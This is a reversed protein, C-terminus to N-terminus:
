SEARLMPRQEYARPWSRLNDPWAYEALEVGERRRGVLRVYGLYRGADAELAEIEALNDPWNRRHWYSWYQWGDPMADATEIEVLGTRDWLRRWAAVSQLAWCDQSWFSKLHGPVEGSWDNVLGAGAM